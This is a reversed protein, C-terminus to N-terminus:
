NPGCANPKNKRRRRKKNPQSNTPLSRNRRARRLQIDEIQERLRLDGGTAELGRNLVKEADAWSDTKAHIEALESYGATRGSQRCNAGLEEVKTRKAPKGGASAGPKARAAAENGGAAEKDDDGGTNARQNCPREVQLKRLRVTPKKRTPTTAKPKPWLALRRGAPFRRTTSASAELVMACERQNRHEKSRCRPGIESVDVPM